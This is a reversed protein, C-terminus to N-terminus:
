ILKRLFDKEYNWKRHLKGYNEWFPIKITARPKSAQVLETKIYNEHLFKQGSYPTMWLGRPWNLPSPNLWIDM